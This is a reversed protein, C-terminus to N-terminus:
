EGIEEVAAEYESLDEPLSLRWWSVRDWWDQRSLAEQLEEENTKIEALKDEIDQKIQRLVVDANPFNDAAAEKEVGAYAAHDQKLLKHNFEIQDKIRIADKYASAM